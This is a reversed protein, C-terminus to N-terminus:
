IRDCNYRIRFVLAVSKSNAYLHHRIALAWIERVLLLMLLAMVISCNSYASFITASQSRFVWFSTGVDIFSILSRGIAIPIPAAESQTGPVPIVRARIGQVGVSIGLCAAESVYNSWVLVLM